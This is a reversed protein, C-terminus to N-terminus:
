LVHFSVMKKTDNPSCRLVMLHFHNGMICFGIIDVLYLMSYTSILEILKDKEVDELPYGDLATRSMVHYITPRSGDVLRRIRAM